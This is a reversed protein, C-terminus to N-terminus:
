SLLWLLLGTFTGLVIATDKLACIGLAAPLQCPRAPIRRLLQRYSLAYALLLVGAICLLLWSWQATQGCAALLICLLVSLLLAAQLRTSSFYHDRGVRSADGAYVRASARANRLRNALLRLLGEEPQHTVLAHRALAIRGKGESLLLGVEHDEAHYWAPSFGGAARLAEARYAANTGHAWGQWPMPSSLIRENRLDRETSRVRSALSTGPLIRTIGAAGVIHPNVFPKVLAELWGSSVVTDSDTFAIISGCARRVGEQRAASVGRGPSHIVRVPHHSLLAVTRDTSHDDVYIVEVQRHRVRSAAALISAVNAEISAEADRCAIVVSILAASTRQTDRAIM